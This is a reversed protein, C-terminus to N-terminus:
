ELVMDNLAEAMRVSLDCYGKELQRITQQAQNLENLVKMYEWHRCPCADHCDSCAPRITEITM